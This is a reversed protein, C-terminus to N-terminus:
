EIVPPEAAIEEDDETTIEEGSETTIVQLKVVVYITDSPLIDAKAAGARITMRGTVEIPATYETAEANDAGPYSGDTTYYITAGDTACTLVVAGDEDITLNPTAVKDAYDLVFTTELTVRYGVNGEPLDSMGVVPNAGAMLTCKTHGSFYRHLLNLIRMAIVDARKQTGLEGMNIVPMTVVEFVLRAKVEPGPAESQTEAITPQRAIVVAGIKKGTEENFVGLATEVDSEIIGKDEELIVVDGFFPESTLRAAADLQLDGAIHDWDPM